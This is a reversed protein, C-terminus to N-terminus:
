MSYGAVDVLPPEMSYGSESGAGRRASEEGEEM